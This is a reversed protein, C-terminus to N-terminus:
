ITYYLTCNDVVNSNLVMTIIGGEKIRLNVPYIKNNPVNLYKGLEVNVRQIGINLTVASQDKTYIILEKIKSKNPFTIHYISTPPNDLRTSHFVTKEMLHKKLPPEIRGLTSM